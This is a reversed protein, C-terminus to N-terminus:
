QPYNPQFFCYVIYKARDSFFLRNTIREFFFIRGM